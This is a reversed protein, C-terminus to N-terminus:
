GSLRLIKLVCMDCLFMWFSMLFWLLFVGRCVCRDVRVCM